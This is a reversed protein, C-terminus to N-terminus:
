LIQFIELHQGRCSIGLSKRFALFTPIKLTTLPKEALQFENPIRIFFPEMQFHWHFLWVDYYSTRSIIFEWWSKELHIPEEPFVSFFVFIRILSSGVRTHWTPHTVYLGHYQTLQPSTIPIYPISRALGVWRLELHPEAWTSILWALQDMKCM